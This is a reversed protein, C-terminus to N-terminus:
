GAQVSSVAWRGASEQLTFRLPYAAIGGDDVIAAALVFGPTLGVVRLLVALPRRRREVPTVQARDRAVRRGLVPTVSSVGLRAPEATRSRCTPASSGSPRTV